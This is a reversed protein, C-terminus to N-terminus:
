EAVVCRRCEVYSDDEIFTFASVNLQAHVIIGKVTNIKQGSKFPKPECKGKSIKKVRSGICQIEEEATRTIM